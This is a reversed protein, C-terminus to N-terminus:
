FGRDFALRAEFMSGFRRKWVLEIANGDGNVLCIGAHWEGDLHSLFAMRSMDEDADEAEGLADVQLGLYRESVRSEWMFEAAEADVIRATMLGGFEARLQELAVDCHRMGITSMMNM